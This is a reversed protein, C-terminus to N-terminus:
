LTSGFLPFFRVNPARQWFFFIALRNKVRIRFENKKTNKGRSICIYSRLCYVEVLLLPLSSKSPRTRKPVRRILLSMVVVFALLLLLLLLLLLSPFPFPPPLNSNRVRNM